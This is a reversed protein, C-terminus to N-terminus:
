FILQIILILFAVPNDPAFTISFIEAQSYSLATGPYDYVENHSLIYIWHAALDIENRVGASYYV